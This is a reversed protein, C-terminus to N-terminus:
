PGTAESKDSALGDILLAVNHRQLGAPNGAGKHSSDVYFTGRFPCRPDAAVQRQAKDSVTSECFIAPIQRDRVTNILRAM